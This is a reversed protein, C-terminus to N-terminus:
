INTYYSFRDHAMDPDLDGVGGITSRYATDGFRTGSSYIMIGLYLTHISHLSYFCVSVLLKVRVTHLMCKAKRGFTGDSVFGSQFNDVNLPFMSTGIAVIQHSQSRRCM